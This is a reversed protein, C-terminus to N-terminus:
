ASAGPQTRVEHTPWWIAEALFSAILPGDVRVDPRASALGVVDKGRGEVGACRAAAFLYRAMLARSHEAAAPNKIARSAVYEARLLDIIQAGTLEKAGPRERYGFLDGYRERLHYPLGRSLGLDSAMVRALELLAVPPMDNEDTYVGVDDSWSPRLAEWASTWRATVGGSKRIAIALSDRGNSEKADGDLLARALDRVDSLAIQYDALVLGASITATPLAVRFAARVAVAADLAFTVPLLAAVDDAGAYIPVGDHARVISLAELAFDRLARSTARANSLSQAFLRGLRDGDMVLYAYFPECEPLKEGDRGASRRLAEFADSLAAIAGADQAFRRAISRSFFLGGDLHPMLTASATAPNRRLADLSAIKHHQPQEAVGHKREVIERARAAYTAAAEPHRKSVDAIWATAAVFATSPWNRLANWAVDDRLDSDAIVSGTSDLPDFDPPTPVWGVVNRLVPARLLPFLRKVLAVASLREDTPVELSSFEGGLFKETATGYLHKHVIAAMMRWFAQQKARGAVRRRTQGSLEGLGDMIMCYDVGPQATVPWATRWSKRRDLWTCDATYGDAEAGCVWVIDWFPDVDPSDLAVPAGIQQTWVAIVARSDAASWGGPQHRDLAALTPEIFTTRVEQALAQWAKRVAAVVNKAAFDAPIEARFANVATGTLPKAANAVVPASVHTEVGLVPRACLLAALTPEDVYGSADCVDPISLRGGGELVAHMAQASLWSLIFSGAWLDRTRRAAGIFGQVPGLSFRLVRPLAAVGTM